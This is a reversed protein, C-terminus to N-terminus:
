PLHAFLVGEHNMFTSERRNLDLPGGAFNTAPLGLEQFICATAAFDWLSGGGDDPKPAKMMCAPGRELVSIANLVAGAGTLAQIGSLGYAEVWRDLRAQIAAAGPAAELPKDTVYTLYPNDRQPVLRLGNKFAGMGQAAHYLTETCPDYVIGICPQGDRSVLALSVSFGHRREVFPLTGDMPDVCWFYPKVLRERNDESEESLFAFGHEMCSPELHKWIAAECAHDVETVIQSAYSTGGRKAKVPVHDEMRDRIIKGAALAAQQGTELLPKWDM